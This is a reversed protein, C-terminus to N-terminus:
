RRLDPRFGYLVSLPVVYLRKCLKSNGLIAVGVLRGDETFVPAGSYGPVVCDDADYVYADGLNTQFTLRRPEFRPPMSWTNMALMIHVDGIKPTASFEQPYAITSRVDRTEGVLIDMFTPRDGPVKAWVVQADKPKMYREQWCHGATLFYAHGPQGAVPRWYLATCALYNGSLLFALDPSPGSTAWSPNVIAVVLFISGAAVLLKKTGTAGSVNM